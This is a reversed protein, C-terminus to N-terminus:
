LLGRCSAALRPSILAVLLVLSWVNGGKFTYALLLCLWFVGVLLWQSASLRGHTEAQERHTPSSGPNVM